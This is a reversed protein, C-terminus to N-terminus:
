GAVAALKSPGAFRLAPSQMGLSAQIRAPQPRLWPRHDRQRMEGSILLVIRPVGAAEGRCSGSVM